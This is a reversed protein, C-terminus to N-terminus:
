QKKNFDKKQFTKNGRSPNYPHHRQGGGRGRYNSGGRSPFHSRGKWFFLEGSGPLRPAMSKRLCKLSELHGKMKTEFNEGFLLPAAGKYAEADDALPLLDKNLDKLVQKRRESTLHSVANGLLTLAAGATETDMQSTLTGRQAEELIHVLPAVTDLTLAQIKAVSVDADKVDKGLNQKVVSDLRPCKTVETDPFAYARRASLRAVNSLPREFATQITAKTTESVKVTLPPRNEAEQDELDWNPLPLSSLPEDLPRDAWSRSSPPNPTIPTIPPTESATTYDRNDVKQALSDLRDSLRQMTEMVTHQFDVGATHDSQVEPQAPTTPRQGTGEHQEVAKNSRQDLLLEALFAAAQVRDVGADLLIDLVESSNSRLAEM